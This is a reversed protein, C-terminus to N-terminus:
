LGWDVPPPPAGYLCSCCPCIDQSAFDPVFSDRADTAADRADSQAADLPVAADAVASADPSGTGPLPDHNCGPAAFGLVLAAAAASAGGARRWELREVRAVPVDPDPARVEHYCCPNGSLGSTLAAGLCHPGGRCQRAHECRRCDGELDSLAFDRNYAFAGAENWIARLPRRRVNGEVFRDQEGRMAQLSLCGKVAGNAEIGVVQMGAQCGQWSERRGGWGRGRLEADHPGCYGVSDGVVLVVGGARKQEVLEPVLRRLRETSILLEERGRLSGMPEALHVRWLDAGAAIAIRRIADLEDVNLRTITTLVAVPVGAQRFAAIAGMSEAFTGAGRMLEHVAETGDISVAVNCMGAAKARRAIEVRDRGRYVGNTVMNVLLGRAVAARAIADWDRRLTPEGGSFTLLECGLEGLEEVLALCEATSMEDPLAHGSKSGCHACRLNCAMTLEWVCTRPRWGRDAVRRASDTLHPEM